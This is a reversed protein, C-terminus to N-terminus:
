GLKSTEAQSLQMYCLISSLLSNRSTVTIRLAIEGLAKNKVKDAPAKIASQATERTEACVTAPDIEASV